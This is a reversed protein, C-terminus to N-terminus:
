EPLVWSLGRAQWGKPKTPMDATKNFCIFYLIPKNDVQYPTKMTAFVTMPPFPLDNWSLIFVGACRVEQQDTPLSFEVQIGLLKSRTGQSRSAFTIKSRSRSSRSRQGQGQHGQGKVGKESLQSFFVINMYSRSKSRRGQGEIRDQGHDLDIKMGFILTM